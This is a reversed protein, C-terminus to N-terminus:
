RGTVSWPTSLAWALQSGHHSFSVDASSLEEGDLYLFPPRRGPEGPSCRISLREENLDLFRAADRRAMLRVFASAHSHVSNREDPSLRTECWGDFPEAFDLLERAADLSIQSVLVLASPDNWAHVVIHDLETWVTLDLRLGGYRLARVAQGPPDTVEFARHEFVPPSGLVKSVVKFGAEKAAWLTWTEASPDSASEIRLREPETFVRELFRPSLERTRIRDTTLDVVDIGVYSGQPPPITPSPDLDM